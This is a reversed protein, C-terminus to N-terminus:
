RMKDWSTITVTTNRHIADKKRVDNSTDVCCGPLEGFELVKSLCLSFTTVKSPVIRSENMGLMSEACSRHLLPRFWGTPKHTKLAHAHCEIQVAGLLGEGPSGGLGLRSARSKYFRSPCDQLEWSGRSALSRHVKDPRPKATSCSFFSM